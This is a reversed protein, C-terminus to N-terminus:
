VSRPSASVTSSAPNVWVAIRTMRALEGAEADSLDEYPAVHRFPVVMLHGSNYPYLNLVAFCAEGRAVVLGQEDPLAPITCFPCAQEGDDDPRDEGDIYAMRHPTWLRQFADPVGAYDAAPEAQVRPPVPETGVPEGGSRQEDM